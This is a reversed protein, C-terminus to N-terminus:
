FFFFFYYFSIVKISIVLSACNVLFCNNCFFHRFNSAYLNRCKGHIADGFAVSHIRFNVNHLLFRVRDYHLNTDKESGFLYNKLLRNSQGSVLSYYSKRISIKKKFIVCYFILLSFFCSFVFCYDVNSIFLLILILFFNWSKLIAMLKKVIVSIFQSIVALTYVICIYNYLYMM